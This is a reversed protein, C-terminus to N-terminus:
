RTRSGRLGGRARRVRGRRAPRRDGDALSPPEESTIARPRTRADGDSGSLALGARRRAAGAARRGPGALARRSGAGACRPSGGAERGAARGSALGVARRRGAGLADLRGAAVWALELSGCGVRAARRGARAAARQGGRGRTAGASTSSRRWARARGAGARRRGCRARSRRARAARASFLEGGVPDHVACALPGDRTSWRSRRAGPPCAARTTSRGTSRISCGAARGGGAVAAGEEGLVGDGPREERLLELLLAEARRDAETM